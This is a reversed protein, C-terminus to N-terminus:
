HQAGNGALIARCAIQDSIEFKDQTDSYGEARRVRESELGFHYGNIYAPDCHLLARSRAEAAVHRNESIM